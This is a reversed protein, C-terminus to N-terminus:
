QIMEMLIHIKELVKLVLLCFDRRSRIERM